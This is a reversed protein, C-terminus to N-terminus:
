RRSAPDTGLVRGAAIDARAEELLADLVDPRAAFAQRWRREDELEELIMAAIADQDAESLQAVEAIAQDLLKTM